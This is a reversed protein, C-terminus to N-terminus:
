RDVILGRQGTAERYSGAFMKRAARMVEIKIHERVAAQEDAMAHALSLKHEAERTFGASLEDFREAVRKLAGPESDDM